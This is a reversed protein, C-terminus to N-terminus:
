ASKMARSAVRRRKSKKKLGLSQIADSDPGYQAIVQAKAGLMADHLAWEAAATADRAAVLANQAYLENQKAQELAQNLAALAAVQYNPNVPTYDSLRQLATLAMRDTDLSEAKIRYNRDNPL